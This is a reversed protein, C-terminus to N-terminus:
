LNGARGAAVDAAWRDMRDGATEHPDPGPEGAMSNWQGEFKGFDAKRCWFPDALFRDIRRQVEAVDGRALALVRGLSGGDQAGRWAYPAGRARQFAGCWYDSVIRRDAPQEPPDKRPKRPAKPEARPESESDSESSSLLPSESSLLPSSLGPNGRVPRPLDPSVPPSRPVEPPVPPPEPFESGGGQGGRHKGAHEEWAFVQLWRRAGDGLRQLLGADQLAILAAEVQAPTRGLLPWVLANLTEADDEIRGWSDTKALLLLWFTRASDGNNEGRVRALRKSTSIKGYLAVWSRAM